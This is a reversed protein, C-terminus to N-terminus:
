VMKNRILWKESREIDDQDHVDFAEDVEYPIVKDGMFTWPPQGTTRKINALNLVWFNHCLFYSAVLDQRNTSIKKGNFDFFPELLGQSNIFKARFPHHDLQQYVPVCATAVQNEILLSICNMIWQAKVTVTNALLVVLIRPVDGEKKMEELAHDIVDAHQSDPQALHNPRRIIQYGLEGASSLIKDCDSSVWFSSIGDVLKAQMAPYYLLPKGFVPRVNKDQFTNNGRGTLLASIKIESM